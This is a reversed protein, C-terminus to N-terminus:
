VLGKKAFYISYGGVMMAQDLASLELGFRSSAYEGIKLGISEATQGEKLAGLIIDGSGQYFIANGSIGNLPLIFFCVILM